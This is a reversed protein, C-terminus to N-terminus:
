AMTLCLWIYLISVDTGDEKRRGRQEVELEKLREGVVGFCGAMKKVAEKREQEVREMELRIHESTEAESREQRSYEQILTALRDAAEFDEKEAAQSQLVEAHHLQQQALRQNKLSVLRQQSLNTHSTRLQDLQQTSITTSQSLTTLISLLKTRPNRQRQAEELKQQELLLRQQEKQREQELQQQHELERQQQLQQLKQQEEAEAKRKAEENANGDVNVVASITEDASMFIEEKTTPLVQSSQREGGSNNGVDGRGVVGGHSSYSSIESSHGGGASASSGKRQFFGSLSFKKSGSMVHPSTEMKRAEEAARKAAQYTEDTPSLSLTTAANYTDNSLKWSTNHNNNNASTSNASPISNVSNGGVSANASSADVRELKARQAAEALANRQKERIFEDANNHVREAKVALPPSQPSPPVAPAYSPTTRLTNTHHTQLPTVGIPAPQSTISPSHVSTVDHINGASANPTTAGVGVRTKGVKKKVKKHALPPASWSVGAGTPLSQHATSLLDSSPAATSSTHDPPAVNANVPPNAVTESPSALFSFGTSPAAPAEVTEKTEPAPSHLFGFSSTPAPTEAVTAPAPSSLFSFGSTATDEASEAAPTTATTSVTTATSEAPSPAASLFGFASGSSPVRSEEAPVTTNNNTNTPATTETQLFSFSSSSPAPPASSEDKSKVELGGFM